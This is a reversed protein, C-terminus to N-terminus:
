AGRVGHRLQDLRERLWRDREKGDASEPPSIGQSTLLRLALGTRTDVNLTTWRECLDRALEVVRYDLGASAQAAVRDFAGDALPEDYVLVTGAALDGLRVHRRTVMTCVLGVLYVFPMSDLLRFVNRILVAGIGPSSGDSCVIRVGAFRKGPTRGHMIVELLPHYLLYIAAPPVIFLAAVEPPPLAPLSGSM